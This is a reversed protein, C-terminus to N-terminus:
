ITAFRPLCDVRSTVICASFETVLDSKVRTIRMSYSKCSVFPKRNYMNMKKINQKKEKNEVVYDHLKMMVHMFTFCYNTKEM